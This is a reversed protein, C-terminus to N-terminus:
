AEGRQRQGREWNSYDAVIRDLMGRADDNHDIEARSEVGCAGRLWEACDEPSHTGDPLHEINLNGKQRRRQDLYLGFRSNSCLVAARKAYPGGKPKDTM